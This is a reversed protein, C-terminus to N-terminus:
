CGRCITKLTANLKLNEAALMDAFKMAPKSSATPTKSMALKGTVTPPDQTIQTITVGAPLEDGARTPGVNAALCIALLAPVTLIKHSTWM